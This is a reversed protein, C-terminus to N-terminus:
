QPAPCISLEASTGAFVKAGGDDPTVHRFPRLLDDSHGLVRGRPVQAPPPQAAGRRAPRPPAPRPRRAGVVCAARTYGRPGPESSPANSETM